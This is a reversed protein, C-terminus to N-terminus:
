VSTVTFTPTATVTTGVGSISGSPIVLSITQNATINYDAAASLTITVQTDSDRSVASQGTAKTAAIVKAWETAESGATLGDLLAERKSQLSSIQTGFTGNSLTIIITKGGAIINAKTPPASIATGTLVASATAGGSGGGPVVAAAVTFSMTRATGLTNDNNAKLSASITVTYRTGATLATNPTIYINSKENEATYDTARSVTIAVPQGANDQMTICNQNNTWNDRVVGRDFTLKITPTTAVGTSGDAPDSSLFNLPSIGGGGGTGSGSGTGTSGTSVTGAITVSVNNPNETSAPKQAITTGAVGIKAKDITGQGTVATAANLSLTTVKSSSDLDIRAGSAKDAVDLSAITAGVAAVNVQAAAITVNTFNGTLSIQAGAPIIESVTVKEFGPGSTSTEVLTAGNDLQVLSVSTNGAAVVRVGAKSVVMTPLSCNELTVSHAGGGKIYSKGQVSVNNLHVDGEGIGEALTLDGTIILNQLNVGTVSVTVNGTVTTTGSAPGYTGAKDYVKDAKDNSGSAPQIAKMVNNLTAIAEARTLPRQAGFTQDPYGRMFGKSVVAAISGKSWAPIAEADKYSNIAATDAPIPLKAIKVVISAFEQRSIEQNPRMTGDPYGSIYAAARAKAIDNAFWDNAAVDAFSGAATATFAFAGNTLSILEARSIKNDPKFSGDPYGHAIGKNIWDSIQAEAWNGQVDSLQAMSLGTCSLLLGLVLSLVIAIRTKSKM